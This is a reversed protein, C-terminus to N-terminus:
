NAKEVIEKVTTLKLALGQTVVTIGVPIEPKKPSIFFQKEKKQQATLVTM